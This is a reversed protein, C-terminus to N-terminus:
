NKKKHEFKQLFSISDNTTATKIQMELAKIFFITRSHLQLRILLFVFIQMKQEDLNFSFDIKYKELNM